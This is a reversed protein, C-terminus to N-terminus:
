FAFAPFGKGSAKIDPAFKYHGSISGGNHTAYSNLLAAFDKNYETSSLWLSWGTIYESGGANKLHPNIKVNINGIGVSRESSTRYKVLLSMQEGLIEYLDWMQGISPLFWESTGAPRATAFSTVANFLPHKLKYDEESLSNKITHTNDYGDLDNYMDKLIQINPLSTDYMQQQPSWVADFRSLGMVYGHTWGRAKDNESMRTSFVVGICTRTAGTQPNTLNRDPLPDKWVIQGDSHDIMRLGGDSWSGDSYYYDGPKLDNERFFEIDKVTGSTWEMSSSEAVMELGTRAINITYNISTGPTWDYTDPFAQGTIVPKDTPLNVNDSISGTLTYTINLSSNARDPILYFTGLLVTEDTTAPAITVNTATATYTSKDASPSWGFGDAKYTLRGSKPATVSLSNVVKGASLDSSKAYISVKTLAHQMNFSIKGQTTPDGPTVPTNAYSQNMLPTAALLDTQDAEATPVTYDLYPFGAVTNGCPTVGAANYPAYAFFSIKDAPNNPWYKVPSYTWPSSTDTRKVEQNYMFNPTDAATWGDSGTYYAFIGTSLLNAATLEGSRNQRREVNTSFGIPRGAQPMDPAGDDTGCAALLLLCGCLAAAHSIGHRSRPHLYFETRNM